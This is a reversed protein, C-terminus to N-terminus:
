AASGQATPEVRTGTPITQVHILSIQEGVSKEFEQIGDVMAILEEGILGAEPTPPEGHLTLRGIIQNEYVLPVTVKWHSDCSDHSKGTWSAHFHEHIRASSIHFELYISDFREGFDRFENWLPQWNITGQLQAASHTGKSSRRGFSLISKVFSRCRQSLLKVESHGFVRAAVSCAIVLGSGILAIWENRYVLSAIGSACCIVCATGIVLVVGVPPYGLQVLRHHLHGRDTSYLSRGTLKRRLIAMGVDFILISLVAVPAALALSAQSKVSSRLALTGLMLGILMSGTDGLFMKANPFNFPLFGLLAGTLCAGLVAELPHGTLCAMIAFTGSLIAGVSTALGDVGDILNVANIAGVLWFVTFPISLIGLEISIDFVDLRHVVGGGTTVLLAAAIQGMLKQRGRLMGRDDILGLAAIGICALILTPVFFPDSYATLLRSDLLFCTAMAILLAILVSLGGALPVTRGHLKRVGDPADLIKHLWMLRILAPCVAFATLAAVILGTALLVPDLIM